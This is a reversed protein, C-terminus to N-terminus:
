FRYNAYLKILDPPRWRLHWLLYGAIFITLSWGVGLFAVYYPELPIPEKDQPEVDHEGRNGVPTQIPCMNQCQRASEAQGTGHMMSMDSSVVHAFGGSFLLAMSVFLGLLLTLKRSRMSLKM